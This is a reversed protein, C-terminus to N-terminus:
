EIMSDTNSYAKSNFQVVVRKDYAKWEAHIKKDLLKGQKDDKAKLILLPKCRPKEQDLETVNSFHM